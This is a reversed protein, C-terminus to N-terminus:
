GSISDGDDRARWYNPERRQHMLALIRIHDTKIRYVINYPFRRLVKKRLGPELEPWAHPNLSIMELSQNIETALAYGLGSRRENYFDAAAHLEVEAEPHVIVELM